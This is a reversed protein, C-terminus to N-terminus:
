GESKEPCCLLSVAATQGPISRTWALPDIDNPVQLFRVPELMPCPQRPADPLTARPALCVVHGEGARANVVVGVGM